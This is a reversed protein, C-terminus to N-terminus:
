RSLNETNYFYDLRQLDDPTDVDWHENLEYYDLNRETIRERTKTLIESTGWPMNNFLEPQPKNLGILVYGGDEAPALVVDNNNTLANLSEELDDQSLSPCDCGILVAHKFKQLTTCFAHHMKEGLDYGSQTHLTLPHKRATTKFFAYETSPACWLQIQCLGASIATNFTRISLELHVKAAQQQTLFPTLRTKVQGPIPAKCFIILVADPYKYHM